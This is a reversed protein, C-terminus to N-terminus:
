PKAIKLVAEATARAEDQALSNGLPVWEPVDLRLYRFGREYIVFAMEEIMDKHKRALEAEFERRLDDDAKSISM